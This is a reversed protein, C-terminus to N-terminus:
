AITVGTVTVDTQGAYGGQNILIVTEEWPASNPVVISATSGAFPTSGCAAPNVVSAAIGVLQPPLATLSNGGAAIGARWGLLTVTFPVPLGLANHGVHGDATVTVTKGRCDAVGLFMGGFAFPTGSVAPVNWRAAPCVIPAGFIPQSWGGGRDWTLPLPRLGSATSLMACAQLRSTMAADGTTPSGLNTQIACRFWTAQLEAESAASFMSIGHVTAETYTCRPGYPPVTVGAGGRDVWLGAASVGTQMRLLSSWDVGHSLSLEWIIGEGYDPSMFLGPSGIQVPVSGVVTGPVVTGGCVPGDDVLVDHPGLACRGCGLPRGDVCLRPRGDSCLAMRGDLASM